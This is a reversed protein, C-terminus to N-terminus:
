KALLAAVKSVVQRRGASLKLQRDPHLPLPRLLGGAKIGLRATLMGGGVGQGARASLRGALDMS